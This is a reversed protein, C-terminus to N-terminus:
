TGGGVREIPRGLDAQVVVIRSHPDYTGEIGLEEYLQARLVPDAGDLAGALGGVQELVARIAAPSLPESAAALQHLSPKAAQRAATVEAIWQGVAEVSASVTSGGVCRGSRSGRNTDGSRARGDATPVPLPPLPGGRWPRDGLRTRHGRDALV